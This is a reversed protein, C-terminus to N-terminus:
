RCRPVAGRDSAGPDSLLPTRRRRAREGSARAAGAALADAGPRAGAKGRGSGGRIPVVDPDAMLLEKGPAARPRPHRRGLRGSRPRPQQRGGPGATRHRGPRRLGRVGRADHVAPRLRLVQACGPPTWAGATPSTSCRSRRSTPWAPAGSSSASAAPPRWRSPCRRAAPWAPPRSSPSSATAPSTSSASRAAPRPSGCRRSRTTRTSSSCARTSASRCRSSRCRSTTPSRQDHHGPRHHQRVAADLGRRRAPAPLLRPRLGRGRRLGQRVRGAAAGQPGHGRHVDGPRAALLRLRRRLVERGAPAREAGEPLRGAAADHRHRQDGEHLGPRRRVAPHRHREHARRHRRRGPRHGQAIIPNRIDARVFEAGGIDHPPPVVDVGIVRDIGPQATLLRAFRGGLYRSVGTVLVVTAM